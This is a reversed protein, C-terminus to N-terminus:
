LWGGILFQFTFVTTRHNTLNNGPLKTLLTTGLTPGVGFFLHSAPHILLPVSVAGVVTTLSNFLDGVSTLGLTLRPFLSTRPGLPANYAVMPGLAYTTLDGGGLDRRAYSLLGGVAFNPRVMYLLAPNLVFTTTADNPGVKEISFGGNLAADFVLQGPRGFAPDAPAASSPTSPPPAPPTAPPVQALAM